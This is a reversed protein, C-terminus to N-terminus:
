RTKAAKGPSRSTKGLVLGVPGAATFAPEPVSGIAEAACRRAAPESGPEHVVTRSGYAGSRGGTDSAVGAM